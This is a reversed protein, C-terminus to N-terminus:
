FFPLNAEGAVARALQTKGCGPPGILLVGKPLFAGSKIYKKRDNMFSVLEELEEKFEEIGLLDTFRVDTKTSQIKQYEQLTEKIKQKPTLIILYVLFSSTSILGITGIAFFNKKWVSMPFLRMMRTLRLEELLYLRQLVGISKFYSSYRLIYDFSHINQSARNFFRHFM